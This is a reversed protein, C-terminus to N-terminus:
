ACPETRPWLRLRACIEDAFEIPIETTTPCRLLHGLPEGSQNPADGRHAVASEV